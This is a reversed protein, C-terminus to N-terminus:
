ADPSEGHSPRLPSPPVLHAWGLAAAHQVADESEALCHKGAEDSKGSTIDLICTKTAYMSVRPTQFPPAPRRWTGVLHLPTGSLMRLGALWHDSLASKSAM